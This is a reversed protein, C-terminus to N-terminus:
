VLALVLQLDRLLCNATVLADKRWDIARHTRRPHTTIHLSHTHATHPNRVTHPPDTAGRPTSNRKGNKRFGLASADCEWTLRRLPLYGGGDVLLVAGMRTVDLLGDYYLHVLWARHQM